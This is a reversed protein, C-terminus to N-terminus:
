FSWLFSVRKYSSLQFLASFQWAWGWNAAWVKQMERCIQSCSLFHQILKPTVFKLLYIQLYLIQSYHSYTVWQYFNKYFVFFDLTAEGLSWHSGLSLFPASPLINSPVFFSQLTIPESDKGCYNNWLCMPHLLKDFQLKLWMGSIIHWPVEIFSKFPLFPWSPPFPSSSLPM